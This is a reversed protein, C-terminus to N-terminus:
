TYRVYSQMESKHNQTTFVHSVNDATHKQRSIIVELFSYFWDPFSRHECSQFDRLFVPEVM